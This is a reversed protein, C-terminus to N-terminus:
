NMLRFEPARNELPFTKLDSNELESNLDVCHIATNEYSKWYFKLSEACMCATYISEDYASLDDRNEVKVIGLPMAVNDLLHFLYQIGQDENQGKIGYYKLFSARIFRSQSTFDGPLGLAGTGKFPKQVSIGDMNRDPFETNQVNLYSLLNQKHWRYDPSNTLVGATNRYVTIQQNDPELIITEGSRDSFVWHVTVNSGVLPQNIITDTKTLLEIVEDVTACQALVHTVVYGPNVVQTNPRAVDPYSAFGAYFLQGGMLGKENIGEYLVPTVEMSQTGIGIAAYQSAIRNNVELNHDFPTGATYYQYDRPIVTVASAAIRNFDYNRGWLHKGDKTDWTISSCGANVQKAAKKAEQYNM